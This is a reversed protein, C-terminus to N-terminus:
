RFASKFETKTGPRGYAREIAPVDALDLTTGDVSVLRWKRYFGSGGPVGVPKAVQAFLEVMVTSGLRTRAQFIAAKSPM